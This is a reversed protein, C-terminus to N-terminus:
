DRGDEPYPLGHQRALGRLKAVRENHERVKDAETRTLWQAFRGGTLDYIVAVPAWLPWWMGQVFGAAIALSRNRDAYAIGYNRIQGLRNRKTAWLGFRAWGVVYVLAVVWIM